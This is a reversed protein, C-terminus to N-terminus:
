GAHRADTITIKRKVQINEIFVGKRYNTAPWSGVVLFNPKKRNELTPNEHLDVSTEM